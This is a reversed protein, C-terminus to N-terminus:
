DKSWEVKLHHRRGKELPVRAVDIWPLWGQRWHDAVLRGDVWMRIGGNSHLKLLHDGTEGAEVTGEWRVSIGGEPPLKPHIRLNPQKAGGPVAIAIAPDLRTAGLREFGAGAFYSGTLGGPQGDTGRLRSPPVPEWPRLDGFRTYSTNDWLIGYGRSSVLFPVVVTANRQWLDLDYGKVDLLGLQHQGLGYLAEDDEQWQQRVHFTREGQVEAPALSRGGEKEVLVPRGQADLFAIEGTRLDVQAKMKPTSLTAKGGADAREVTPADCRRVSTALSPRDFFAPDRSWAVRVVDDACFAVKLHGGGVPLVLGDASPGAAAPPAQPPVALLVPLALVSAFRTM